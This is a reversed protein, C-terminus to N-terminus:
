AGPPEALTVNAAFPGKDGEFERFRLRMGKALTDWVDQTLGDRQFYVERGDDARLYGYGLEPEILTIEGHLLPAHRKVEVGGRVKKQRKLHTEAASFARNAALLLDDHANGQAVEREVHFDEGPIRLTIAARFVEGSVRRKQPAELVVECGILRDFRKELAAIRRRVLDEVAPSPDLNRWSIIPDIQMHPLDAGPRGVDNDIM